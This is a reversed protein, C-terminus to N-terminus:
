FIEIKFWERENIGSFTRWCKEHSDIESWDWGGRVIEWHIEFGRASREGSGRTKKTGGVGM